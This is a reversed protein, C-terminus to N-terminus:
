NSNLLLKKLQGETPQFQPCFLHRAWCVVKVERQTHGRETLIVELGGILGVSFAM